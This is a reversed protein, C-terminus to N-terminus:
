HPKAPSPLPANPDYSEKEAKGTPDFPANDDRETHVTQHATPVQFPAKLGQEAATRADPHIGAVALAAKYEALAHSREPTKETDFLRGRYIHAWSVTQPSAAASGSQSIVEAFGTMADEPDEQALDIRAILYAAETHNSGPESLAKRALLRADSLQGELMKKQALQLGSVPTARRVFEGSGEPLFAIHEDRHQEHGIDMGYIMEGINEKLGVPSKEMATIQGYFYDTLTWGQRMDLDVQRRRIAEAERDYTTMQEDYRALDARAHSAPRKPHVLGTDMTRTEVAKILCENILAVIDSKYIFEIPALQVPKLLPSLREMAAARSYVLPEIEYHLYLHRVQDMRLQGTSDPSTVIDYDPGYIRANPESPALMPEVLILFHRGDYGNVPVRLYINTDLITKTVIAHVHDIIADYEARHKLWIGHLGADEAFTRLLPLVNVVALADPPMDTEDAETQLGPAPGLFLALSVYQALERGKDTLEHERVYQCLTDRSVRAAPSYQVALDVDARVEARVPESHQLDADYGCANLGTAVDFLSESTELTVAAGAAEANRSRPRSPQDPQRVSENGSSSSSSSSSQASSAAASFLLAAALLFLSSLSKRSM